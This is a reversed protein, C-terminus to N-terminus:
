IIVGQYKNGTQCSNSDNPPVHLNISTGTNHEHVQYNCVFFGKFVNPVEEHYADYMCKGVLYANIDKLNFLGSKKRM